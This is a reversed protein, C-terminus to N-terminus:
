ASEKRPEEFDPTKPAIKRPKLAKAGSRMAQYLDLEGFEEDSVPTLAADMYAHRNPDAEIRRRIKRMKYEVRGFKFHYSVLEAWYKAYFVIPNELPMGSRRDHRYKRPFYGGELPHEERYRAFSYFIVLRRLTAQKKNSRFPYFRRVITEMHDMSYFSEWAAQYTREWAEDSMLPHHTVRHHVDYKNMDPDMWAGSEHLDLHDKSGPLPTLYSFNMIDIPLEKKIVEIDRAVSEETDFPFGIIYGANIVVNHRKWELIMKRYETINNQTKGASVLNDPNVSELGIFVQQVGARVAKEIFNPIRHCMTDVQIFHRIPIGEKERLVILRDFLEEWNKNRALNDDTIFYKHVGQAHNRRVLKELDDASRYRSKRGHVNIITCFSCKFPCGRGVDFSTYGRATDNVQGEPLFPVPQGSMEPLNDLHDYIPKLEGRYADKLIEDLRQEEAEGAFFSIGVSQAERLDEPLEPLMSLCGSVHFGGVCVPIGADLFPQALDRTRPFQNSQVGVFAILAKAKDRRIMEIFKEPRVRENCEDIALFKIDVDPGLVERERCDEALGYVCALSNSPIPSIMWQIPYGADTYHTPKILVLHFVENPLKENLAM